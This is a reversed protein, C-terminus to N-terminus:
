QPGRERHAADREGAAAVGRLLLLDGVLGEVLVVVALDIARLALRV